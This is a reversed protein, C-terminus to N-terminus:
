LPYILPKGELGNIVNQAAIISMDMRTKITASGLHPIVVANPLQLLEHDPPLPEPDTVDLGAAFITKNKLAKVLDDTIVTQGRGVNVFVANKKMKQFTSENFLGRTENTLPVAVIIFDSQELLEDLSVFIAGLDDGAKKRSHGTYVFREVDFCKLRKVVAQGISGLGVIGVTSGRLEYGLLWQFNTNVKGEELKQQGEHIRRAANLTLLIAIEAVAISLVEPTHGVKIGRKKIEPVDLHDYGASVTSVVKLKSGAINLFETNVTQHGVIVVADHDPLAQLVEEQSPYSSQIVTVDFKEQLLKIATDFYKNSTILVRLKSM